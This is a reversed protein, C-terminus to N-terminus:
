IVNIVIFSKGLCRYKDPLYMMVGTHINQQLTQVMKSWACREANCTLRYLSRRIALVVGDDMPLAKGGYYQIEGEPVSEALISEHFHHYRLTM